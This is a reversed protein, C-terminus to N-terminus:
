GGRGTKEQLEDIRLAAAAKTLSDLEDIQEGAETALTSLYSKQSATIPEDGTKWQTPDRFLESKTHSANRQRTQAGVESVSRSGSPNKDNHLPNNMFGRLNFPPAAGKNDIDRLTRGTAVEANAVLRLNISVPDDRHQALQIRRYILKKVGPQALSGSLNV